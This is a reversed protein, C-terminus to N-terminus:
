YGKDLMVSQLTTWNGTCGKSNLVELRVKSGTTYAALALAYAEKGGALNFDIKFSNTDCLDSNELVILAHGGAATDEFM